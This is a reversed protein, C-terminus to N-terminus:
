DSAEVNISFSFDHSLLSTEMYQYSIDNAVNKKKKTKEIPLSMQLM